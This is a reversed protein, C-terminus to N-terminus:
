QITCGSATLPTASGSQFSATTCSIATPKGSLQSYSVMGSSLPVYAAGNISIQAGTATGCIITTGAAPAQCTSGGTGFSVSSGPQQALVLLSFLILAVIFGMLLKM